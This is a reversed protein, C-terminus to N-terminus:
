APVRTSPISGDVGEPIAIGLYDLMIAFLDVTRLPGPLPRNAAVVCRMHERTLSGHGSRHEPIEWDRRLDAGPAAIVVLDGTRWTRFIQMLQVAADPYAADLTEAHWGRDDDSYAGGLGLVDASMPTYTYCEGDVSIRARGPRSTLILDAGDVGVVMGVGPLAALWDVLDAPIGEVSGADIEDVGYRRDRVVGLRLYVHAMGNGSVMVAVKPKTRWLKPHRLTPIGRAELEAGIDTHRDVRTLGHDSVLLTLNEGEFGGADAYEGVIRDFQRYMEYVVPHFPDNSHTVGDVGPFVAFTFTPRERISRVLEAGAMRDLVGYGRPAYHAVSGWFARGLGSRARGRDLGRVFPSGIALSDPILDFLTKGKVLEMTIFHIGDAEEVSHITIINPHNLAALAKAERQFRDRRGDNEALEPPLIKLAVKRDLKTDEALYVEGMGGKGIPELIEYHALCTGATLSM